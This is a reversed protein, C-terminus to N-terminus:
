QQIEYYDSSFLLTEETEQEDSSAFKKIPTTTYLIRFKSYQKDIKSYVINGYNRLTLMEANKMKENKQKSFSSACEDDNMNDCYEYKYLKYDERFKDSVATITNSLIYEIINENDNALFKNKKAKLLPTIAEIILTDESGVFEYYLKDNFTPPPAFFSWQQYFFTSFVRKYNYAKIQTYNNPMTFFM